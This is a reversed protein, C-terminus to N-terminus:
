AAEATTQPVDYSIPGRLGYSWRSLVRFSPSGPIHPTTHVVVYWGSYTHCEGNTCHEKNWDVLERSGFTFAPVNKDNAKTLIESPTLSM